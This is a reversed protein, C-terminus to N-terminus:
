IEECFVTVDKTGFSLRYGLCANQTKVSVSSRKCYIAVYLINCVDYSVSHKMCIKRTSQEKNIILQLGSRNIEQFM